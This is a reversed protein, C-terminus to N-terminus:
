PSGSPQHIDHSLSCRFRGRMGLPLARDTTRHQCRQKPKKLKIMFRNQIQSMPPSHLVVRLGRLWLDDGPVLDLRVCVQGSQYPSQFQHEWHGPGALFGESAEQCPEENVSWLLTSGAPQCHEHIHLLLDPLMTCPLLYASGM